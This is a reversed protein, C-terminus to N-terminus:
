HQVMVKHTEVYDNGSITVVIMQASISSTSLTVSQVPSEMSVFEQSLIRGSLDRIAVVYNADVEGNIVVNLHDNCPVPYM